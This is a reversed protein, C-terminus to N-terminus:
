AAEQKELENDIKEHLRDMIEKIEQDGTEDHVDRCFFWASMLMELCDQSMDGDEKYGKRRNKEKYAVGGSERLASGNISDASIM